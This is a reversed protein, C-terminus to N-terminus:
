YSRAFSDVDINQETVEIQIYMYMCPWPKGEQIYESSSRFTGHEIREGGFVFFFLNIHFISHPFTFPDISDLSDELVM